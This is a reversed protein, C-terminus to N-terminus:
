EQSLHSSRLYLNMSNLGQTRAMHMTSNLRCLHKSLTDLLGPPSELVNTTVEIPKFRAELHSPGAM